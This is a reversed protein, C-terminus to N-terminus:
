ARRKPRVHPIRLRTAGHRHSVGLRSRSDSIILLQQVCRRPLVGADPGFHPVRISLSGSRKQNSHNEARYRYLRFSRRGSSGLAPSFNSCRSLAPLQPLQCSGWPHVSQGDGGWPRRTRRPRHYRRRNRLGSYDPEVGSGLFHVAQHKRLLSSISIVIHVNVKRPSTIAGVISNTPNLYIIWVRKIIQLCQEVRTQKIRIQMLYTTWEPSSIPRIALTEDFLEGNSDDIKRVWSVFGAMVFYHFQNFLHQSEMLLQCCCFSRIFFGSYVGSRRWRGVSRGVQYILQISQGIILNLDYFFLRFSM